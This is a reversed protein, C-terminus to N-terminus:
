AAHEALFPWPAPAALQAALSCVPCRPVRYLVHRTCALEPIQEVALLVGVFRGDDLVVHRLAITAALGALIAEFAPAGPYAGNERDEVAAITAARRLRYCEHCATQHPVFIPGIAAISGDFPLVQLWRAERELARENWARLRSMEHAAPAVIALDVPADEDDCIEVEADSLLRAIEEATGGSGVVTVRARSLAAAVTTADRGCADTAALFQVTRGAPMAETLLHRGALLELAHVIAPRIPEGLEAVIEDITRTGDLLPLLHPLLRTAARGEFELLCGGYRFVATTERVSLRYWPKLLPRTPLASEGM